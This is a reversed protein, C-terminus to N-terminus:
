VLPLQAGGGPYRAGSARPVNAARLHLPGVGGPRAVRGGAALSSRRGFLRSRSFGRGAAPHTRPPPRKRREPVAALASGANSRAPRTAVLRSPLRRPEHLGALYGHSVRHSALRSRHYPVSDVRTNLFPSMIRLDARTRAQSSAAPARASPSAVGAAWACYKPRFLTWYSSKWNSTRRVWCKSM